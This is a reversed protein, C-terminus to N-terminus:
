KRHEGSNFKLKESSARDDKKIEKDILREAYDLVDKEARTQFRKSKKCLVIIMVGFLLVLLSISAWIGAMLLINYKDYDQPLFMIVALLIFSFVACGVFVKGAGLYFMVGINEEQKPEKQPVLRSM